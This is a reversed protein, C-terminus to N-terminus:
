VHALEKAPTVAPAGFFATIKAIIVPDPASNSFMEYITQRNIGTNLAIQNISHARMALSLCDLYHDEDERQAAKVLFAAITEADNLYEVPDFDKM